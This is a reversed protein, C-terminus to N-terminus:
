HMTKSARKCWSFRFYNKKYMKLLRDKIEIDSINPDQSLTCLHEIIWPFMLNWLM